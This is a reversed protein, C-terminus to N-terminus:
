ATRLLGGFAPKIGISGFEDDWGMVYAIPFHGTLDERDREWEEEYCSVYLFNLWGMSDMIVHYVKAYHELEFSEIKNLISDYELQGKNLEIDYLVPFGIGSSESVWIHGDDYTNIVDDLLGLMKLREKGEAFMKERMDSM